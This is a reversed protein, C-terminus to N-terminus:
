MPALPWLPQMAISALRWAFVSGYVHGCGFAECFFDSERKCRRQATWVAQGMAVNKQRIMQQPACCLRWYYTKGNTLMLSPLPVYDVGAADKAACRQVSGCCVYELGMRPSPILGCLASQECLQSFNPDDTARGAHLRWGRQGDDLGTALSRPNPATTVWQWM